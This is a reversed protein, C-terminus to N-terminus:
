AGLRGMTEQVVKAAGEATSVDAQLFLDPMQTDAPISRAATMVIAGAHKLREVVAKGMGQTGGTVLARKEDLEKGNQVDWPHHTSSIM